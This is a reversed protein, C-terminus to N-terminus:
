PAIQGIEAVVIPLGQLQKSQKFPGGFGQSEFWRHVTANAISSFRIPVCNCWMHFKPSSPRHQTVKWRPNAHLIVNKAFQAFNTSCKRFDYMDAFDIIDWHRHNSWTVTSCKVGICGTQIQFHVLLEYWSVWRIPENEDVTREFWDLWMHLKSFILSPSLGKRAQAVVAAVDL